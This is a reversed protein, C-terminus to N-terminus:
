HQGIVLLLRLIIAQAQTIIKKVKISKHGVLYKLAANAADICHLVKIRGNIFFNPNVWCHRMKLKGQSTITETLTEKTVWKRNKNLYFVDWQM